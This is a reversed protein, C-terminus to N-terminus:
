PRRIGIYRKPYGSNRYETITVGNHKASSSSHIFRIPEGRGSIIIGVHGVVNLNYDTGSFLIIDGKACSDLPIKKGFHAYDAASRPVEIDFHRYVFYVFGSCDFGKESCGGYVYPKGVLTISYKVISDAKTKIHSVRQAIIGQNTLFLGAVIFFIFAPKQQRNQM